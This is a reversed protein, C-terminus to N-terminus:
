TTMLNLIKHALNLFSSLEGASIVKRNGLLLVHDKIEMFEIENRHQLLFKLVEPQMFKYADRKSPGYLRYFMYFLPEEPFHITTLNNKPEFHKQYQGYGLSFIDFLGERLLCIHPFHFQSTDIICITSHHRVYDDLLFGRGIYMRHEIFEAVFETEVGERVFIEGWQWSAYENAPGFHELLELNYLKIQNLTNAKVHFGIDSVAADFKALRAKRASNAWFIIGALVGMGLVIYIIYSVLEPM